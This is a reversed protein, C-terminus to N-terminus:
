PSRDFRLRPQAGETALGWRCGHAACLTNLATECPVQSLEVTVSGEVGDEIVVPVDLVQGFSQLVARLPAGALSMDLSRRLKDRLASSIEPAARGTPVALPAHRVVLRADDRSLSWDCALAECLADLATEVSVGDLTLSMPSTFEGELDISRGAQVALATLVDAAPLDDLKLRLPADLGEPSRGSSRPRVELLRPSAGTLRWDCGATECVASLATRWTVKSLRVTVEGDVAPDLKLRSESMLEFSRLVERLDASALDLSIPDEQLDPAASAAVPSLLAASVLLVVARSM